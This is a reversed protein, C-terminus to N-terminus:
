TLMMFAPVALLILVVGLLMVMPFLLRTGAEEGRKLLRNKQEELAKEMELGLLNETGSIGQRLNRALFGGLRLYCSLGCRQGFRLYAEEEPVGQEMSRLAIRMETYLPHLEEKKRFLRGQTKEALREHREEGEGLIREWASHISLGAGFFMSLKLLFGPYAEELLAKRKKLKEKRRQGPSILLFAAALLGFVFFIGAPATKVAYHVRRGEAEEPLRLTEESRDSEAERIRNELLTKFDGEEAPRYILEEAAFRSSEGSFIRVTLTLPVAEETMIGSAILGRDTLIDPRSSEYRLRFGGPSKEPLELDTSFGPYEPLSERLAQLVGKLEADLLSKTEEADPTKPHVTVTLTVEQEGDGAVLEVTRTEGFDPRGLARIEPRKEQVLLTMFSLLCSLFLIVLIKGLVLAERIDQRAQPVLFAEAEETEEATRTRHRRIEESLFLASCFLARPLRIERRHEEYFAKRYSRRFFVFLIEAAPILLFIIM